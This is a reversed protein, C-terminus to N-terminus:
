TSQGRPPASLRWLLVLLALCATAFLLGSVAHLMGFRRMDEGARAATLMPRLGLESVLPTTMATILLVYDTRKVWSVARRVLMTLAIGGLVLGLWAAVRFFHGAAAGAAHRDPFLAFLAPAVIACICWLSGAWAALAIHLIRQM